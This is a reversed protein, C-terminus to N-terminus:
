KVAEILIHTYPLRLLGTLVSTHVQSFGASEALTRWGLEARISQGRDKSIIWKSLASQHRLFTPELSVFRGGPKLSFLADALLERAHVEDVHHMVGTCIVLDAAGVGSMSRLVASTGTIFQGRSGYHRQAQTIYRSSIDIGLYEVDPLVDLVDGPGCGIDIVRMGPTVRWAERALWRRTATAGVASQFLRYILPVGL